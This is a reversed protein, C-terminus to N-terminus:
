QPQWPIGILSANQKTHTMYEPSDGLNDPLIEMMLDDSASPLSLFSSVAIQTVIHVGLGGLRVPLTEQKIQCDNLPLNVAIELVIKKISVVM